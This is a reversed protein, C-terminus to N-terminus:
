NFIRGKLINIIWKSNKPYALTGIGLGSLLLLATGPEPVAVQAITDIRSTVLEEYGIRSSSPGYVQFWITMEDFANLDIGYPLADNDFVTGTTDTFTFYLDDSWLDSTDPTFDNIRLLDEGNPRNNLIVTPIYGHMNSEITFNDFIISYSGSTEYAAFNDESPVQDELTPDYELALHGIFTDGAQIDPLDTDYIPTSSIVTGSFDYKFIPLAFVPQQAIVLTGGICIFLAM